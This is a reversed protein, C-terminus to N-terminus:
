VLVPPCEVHTFVKNCVYHMIFVFSCGAKKKKTSNYEKEFADVREGRQDRLFCLYNQSHVM